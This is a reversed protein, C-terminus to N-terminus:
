GGNVLGLILQHVNGGDSMEIRDFERSKARQEQSLEGLRKTLEQRIKRCAPDDAVTFGVSMAEIKRVMDLIMEGHVREHATIGAIFVDWLRQMPPELKGAPKPLKTIITLWPKATALMCGGDAQPRYDRSWKLDFTTYAIARGVGVKPGNEGISRYLEIGSGGRVAYTEVRETPKWEAEAAGPLACCLVALALVWRRMVGETERRYVIGSPSASFARRPRGAVIRDVGRTEAPPEGCEGGREVIQRPLGATEGTQLRAEVRATDPAGRREPASRRGAAPELAVVGVPDTGAIDALDVLNEGMGM